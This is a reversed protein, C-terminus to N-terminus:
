SALHHHVAQLLKNMDVPKDLWDEVPLYEGPAYERDRWDPYFRLQTTQHIASVVVIPVDRVKEDPDKRLAWVFHFGETGTPMMIDLVILDPKQARAQELGSDKDYAVIVDYGEKELVMQVAEVFDPDDDIILIRPARKEVTPEAVATDESSSGPM